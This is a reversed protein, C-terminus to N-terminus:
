KSGIIGIKSWNTENNMDTHIQLLRPKLTADSLEDNEDEEHLGISRRRSALAASEPQLM